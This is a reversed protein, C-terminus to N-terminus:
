VPTERMAPPNKVLQALLSAMTMHPSLLRTTGIGLVFVKFDKSKIKSVVVAGIKGERLYSHILETKKKDIYGIFHGHYWVELAHCDKPNDFENRLYVHMDEELDNMVFDKEDEDLQEFGQVRVKAISYYTEKNLISNIDYEPEPEPHSDLVSEPEMTSETEAIPEVINPEQEPESEPEVTTVPEKILEPNALSKREAILQPEVAPEPEQDVINVLEKQPAQEDPMKVQELIHEPEDAPELEVAPKVKTSPAPEAIHEPESVPEEKVEPVVEIEKEEDKELGFLRKFFGM